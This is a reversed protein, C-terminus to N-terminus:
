EEKTSEELQELYEMYEVLEPDIPEDLMEDEIWRMLRAKSIRYYARTLYKGDPAIYEGFPFVGQQLGAYFASKGISSGAAHLLELARDASIDVMRRVTTAVM